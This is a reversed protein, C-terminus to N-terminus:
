GLGGAVLFSAPSHLLRPAFFPSASPAAAVFSARSAAPVKYFVNEALRTRTFHLLLGASLGIVTGVKSPVRRANSALPMCALQCACQVARKREWRGRPRRRRRRWWRRRRQLARLERMKAIAEACDGGQKLAIAEERLASVRSQLMYLIINIARPSLIYFM